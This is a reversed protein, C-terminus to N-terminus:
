KSLLEKVVYGSMMLGFLAPIYSITGQINVPGRAGEETNETSPTNPPETSYVVPHGEKIGKASLKKRVRAALGDRTHKTEVLDGLKVAGLDMRSGAGMSSICPISLEHCHLILHVKPGLSDIADVVFDPSTELLPPRTDKDAYVEIADVRIDPDIDAIREAAVRVKERGVTSNLALIQRNLNSPKFTDHDVLTLHGIGARALGEMAYGGVGGIGFIIVHSDQLKKVGDEGILLETRTHIDEM